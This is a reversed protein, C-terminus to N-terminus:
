KLVTAKAEVTVKRDSAPDAAQSILMSKGSQLVITMSQNLETPTGPEKPDGQPPYYYITLELQIPGDISVYPRADVNLAVPFRGTSAANNRIKGWNGSSVIMSVTKKAPAAKGLQDTLTLEIEVNTLTRVFRPNPPAEEVKTKIAQTKEVDASVATAPKPKDNGSQAAVAAPAAFLCAMILIVNKM